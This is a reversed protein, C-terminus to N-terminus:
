VKLQRVGGRGKKREPAMKPHSPSNPNVIGKRYYSKEEPSLPASLPPLPRRDPGRPAVKIIGGPRLGQFCSVKRFGKLGGSFCNFRRPRVCAKKVESKMEPWSALASVRTTRPRYFKIIIFSKGGGKKKDFM